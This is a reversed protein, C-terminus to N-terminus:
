RRGCCHKVKRGSGCRCPQNRESGKVHVPRRTRQPLDPYTKEVGVSMVLDALFGTERQMQEAQVQDEETWLRGDLYMLDESGSPSDPHDFAIGVFDLTSPPETKTRRLHDERYRNIISRLQAMAIRMYARLIDARRQRYAHYSMSSPQRFVILMYLPDGPVSPPVLRTRAPENKGLRGILEYISRALMRRRTRPERALFRLIMEADMPKALNTLAYQTDGLMHKAFREILADWIYSVEDAKQQALRQPHRKFREWLGEDVALHTVDGPVRFDNWGDLGVDQLYYALLQEEGAARVVRGSTFLHEKRELYAVLDRVTDLTELLISLTTDDLVHILGRSPDVQRVTFLPYAAPDNRSGGIVESTVMLSGSGGGFHAICADRVGRAVVVRHVKMKDKPPLPVPLPQTCKPDLYVLQPFDKLWREAGYIQKASDEVARRYWRSWAVQLLQENQFRIAKDSFIIVHNEFVVLVDCLEKGDGTSDAKQARYVNSYSWPSLFTRDTLQGLHMEAETVGRSRIIALEGPKRHRKPSYDFLISAVETSM